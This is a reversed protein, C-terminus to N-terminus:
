GSPLNLTVKNLTEQDSAVMVLMPNPIDGALSVPVVSMPGPVTVAKAAQQFQTADEATDWATQWVVAWSGNPGEYSAIRDGGWGAAADANPLGGLGGLLGGLAGGGDGADGNAVWVGTFFEGEVESIAQKWGDGLRGALDSLKVEIPKEGATYKEPHMIQETSVPPDAWVKNVADWGGNAQMATVFSLGSFYPFQLSQSLLLPANDLAQQDEGTGGTGLAAIEDISLNSFAWEYMVDTADGEALATVAALHDAQDTPLDQLKTLDFYQDQLAHDYEHAVTIKDTADFTHDPEQIVTFMKTEPDYFAAVQGVLLDLEAQELDMDAPLLGLHKYLNGEAAVVDPPNDKNFQAKAEEAYQDRTIFRFPVEAKPQLQRIDPVTKVVADIQAVVQPDISASPLQSGSPSTSGAAPPGASPQAGPSASANGIYGIAALQPGGAVITRHLPKPSAHPALLMYWAGAAVISVAVLLTLFVALVNV